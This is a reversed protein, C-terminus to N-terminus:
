CCQTEISNDALNNLLLSHHIFTRPYFFMALKGSNRQADALLIDGQERDLVDETRCVIRMWSDGFGLVCRRERSPGCSLFLPHEISPNDRAPARRAVRKLCLLARTTKTCRKREIEHGQEEMLLKTWALIMVSADNARVLESEASSKANLRQKSSVTQVLGRGREFSAAAGAHSKCDPHVAFSTDV